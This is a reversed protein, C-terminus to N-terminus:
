VLEDWAQESPKERVSMARERQTVAALIAQQHDPKIKDTVVLHGELEDIAEWRDKARLNIRIPKPGLFDDLDRHM